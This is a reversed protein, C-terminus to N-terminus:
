VDRVRILTLVDSSGTFQIRDGISLTTAGTAAVGNLLYSLEGSDFVVENDRASFSGLNQPLDAISLALVNAAAHHGNVAQHNEISTQNVPVAQSGHLIHTPLETKAQNSNSATTRGGPLPLTKVLSVGAEAGTILDRYELCTQNVVGDDVIVFGLSAPLSAIFGPKEALAKSVLLQTDHDTAMAALQENITRYHGSLSNVLSDMPMKATHVIDGAGLELILNGEEQGQALWQPLQNYLQQESEADHQPNFRCQQVFMGTALQMILDTFNQSGVGPIQVTSQSVLQGQDSSLKTVIVQHLHLDAYLVTRASAAALAATLASDVIGAVNFPSHQALGLLISLQQRTFSGPVAIVVDSDVDAHEALHQLHSFAIDAHHRFNNGHEIPDLNLEQWYKNYSQTPKLRAQKEAQEGLVVEEGTALAFGPSRILLGSEDGVSIAKDNLEIVKFSM